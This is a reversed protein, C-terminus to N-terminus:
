TNEKTTPFIDVLRVQGNSVTQIRRINRPSPVSTGAEWRLVTSHACGILRGFATPTLKRKARFESIKM